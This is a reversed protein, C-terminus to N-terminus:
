MAQEGLDTGGSGGDRWCVAAPRGARWCSCTASRPTSSRPTGRNGSRRSRASPLLGVAASLWRPVSFAPDFIGSMIAVPLYSANAIPSASEASRAVSSLVLGLSGFCAVGLALISPVFIM